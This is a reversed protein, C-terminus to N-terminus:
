SDVRREFSEHVQSVPTVLELDALFLPRYAVGREEVADEESIFDVLRKLQDIGSALKREIFLVVKLPPYLVKLYGMALLYGAGIGALHGFFSTSPVLFAIVFLNIFPFYETPIQVDRGAVTFQYLVPTQAYEKQCYYTLFSFCIGLLGAVGNEPYLFLGVLCYPLAAAVALLNLTIGTNVTGNAREYRSILPFLAVLNVALHLFNAHPFIYFSIANLNFEIPASPYLVLATSSAPYVVYFLVAFIILGVSLAPTTKLIQQAKTRDPIEVIM